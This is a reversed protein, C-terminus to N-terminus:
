DHTRGEEALDGNQLRAVAKFFEVLYQLGWFFMGVPIVLMPIWLPTELIGSSAYGTRYNYLVWGATYWTIIFVVITGSLKTAVDLWRQVRMPLHIILLDVNVHRRLKMTLAAGVFTIYIMCYITVEDSFLLPKHFFYRLFVDVVVIATMTIVGLGALWGTVTSITEITRIWM